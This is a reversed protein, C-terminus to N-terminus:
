AQNKKRRFHKLGSIREGKRLLVTAFGGIPIRIYVESDKNRDPSLASNKEIIKTSDVM